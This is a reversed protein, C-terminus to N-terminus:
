NNPAELLGGALSVKKVGRRKTNQKNELLEELKNENVTFDFAELTSNIERISENGLDLVRKRVHELTMPTLYNIDQIFQNSTKRSVKTLMGANQMRMDDVVDLLTKFLRTINRQVIFQVAKRSDMLGNDERNGQNEM